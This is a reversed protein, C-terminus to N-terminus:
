VRDAGDKVFADVCKRHLSQRVITYDICHWQKSKPHQWTDKQIAKKQFWTNCVTADNITLFTLLERGAENM